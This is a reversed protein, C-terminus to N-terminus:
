NSEHIEVNYAAKVAFLCTMIATYVQVSASCCFVDSVYEYM